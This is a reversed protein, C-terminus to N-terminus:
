AGLKLKRVVGALSRSSRRVHQLRDRALADAIHPDDGRIELVPQKQDALDPLVRRIGHDEGEVVFKKRAWGCYPMSMSPTTTIELAGRNASPSGPKGLRHHVLLGPSLLEDGLQVLAQELGHAIEQLRKRM